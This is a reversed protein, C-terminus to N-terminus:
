RERRAITSQQLCWRFTFGQRLGWRGSVCVARRRGSRWALLCRAGSPRGVSVVYGPRVIEYYVGNFGLEDPFYDRQVPGTLVGEGGNM